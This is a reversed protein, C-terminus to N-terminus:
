ECQLFTKLYESEETSIEQKFFQELFNKAEIHTKINTKIPKSENTRFASWCGKDEDFAVFGLVENTEPKTFNFKIKM